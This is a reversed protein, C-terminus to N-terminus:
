DSDYGYPITFYRIFQNFDSSKTKVKIYARRFFAPTEQTLSMAFM